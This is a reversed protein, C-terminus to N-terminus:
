TGENEVLKERISMLREIGQHLEPLLDLRLSIGKRTPRYDPNDPTQFWVRLDVYFQGNYKKVQIQIKESENRPFAHVLRAENEQIM